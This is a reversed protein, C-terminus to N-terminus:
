QSNIGSYNWKEFNNIFFDANTFPPLCEYQRCWFLRNQGEEFKEKFLGIHTVASQGNSCLLMRGPLYYCLIRNKIAAFDNGTIILQQLGFTNKLILSAWVGFSTPYKIAANGLRKILSNALTNWKSNGFVMGLYNLNEAMISNGSPTAGDYVESKRLIVDQQNKHTYQYFGSKEDYFNETVYNTLIAATNLYNLNSTVEQLQICAQIMYAYDDLFAPYKAISDKYTHHMAAGNSEAKFATMLFQMTNEGLEVYHTKNLAAGAKCLATILLANWGLLIKDDTLPRLRKNRKHLLKKLCETLKSQLVALDINHDKAFLAPEKLIRLINSGEWNGNQTVDYFACFVAADDELIADIETKSWVYFKGEEGESDADLAAFFGGNKHHMERILFAITHNIVIAYKENKTILYADSLVNIVLANDYLMKEFHPALWEADTSYRAFGGGAHDYIGGDIMKDLSLLAQNLAEENKTYHYFQLLYQTTLTQPFKPAKGFGGWVTDAQKLINATIENCHNLTFLGDTIKLNEFNSSQKLHQLLNEAQAEIEGPKQNWSRNVATIVETWSSRNYAQVPPFYTGGYFPKADPTLFVNLPWGGSGSIAQVADMYIHDLDPREERDIKINIFYLNMKEAVTENEFSEREMVHCWHCAAYGISVLILKNEAKAKQLAESGWAYWNVPNHAHQLLYPSSEHILSNTFKHPMTTITYVSFYLLPM